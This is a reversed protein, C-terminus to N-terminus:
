ILPKGTIRHHIVSLMFRVLLYTTPAHLIAVWDHSTLM